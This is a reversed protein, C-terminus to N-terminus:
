IFSIGPSYHAIFVGDFLGNWSGLGKVADEPLLYNNISPPPSGSSVKDLMCKVSSKRLKVHQCLNCPFNETSYQLAQTINGDLAGFKWDFLKEYPKANKGSALDLIDQIESSYKIEPMRLAVGPPANKQLEFPWYYLVLTGHAVAKWFYKVMFSDDEDPEILMVAKSRKVYCDLNEGCTSDLPTVFKVTRCSEPFIKISMQVSIKEVLNLFSFYNTGRSERECFDSGLMITLMPVKVSFDVPKSL